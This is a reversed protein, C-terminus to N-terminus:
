FSLYSYIIHLLDDYIPMKIKKVEGIFDDVSYFRRLLDIVDNHYIYVHKNYTHRQVSKVPVHLFMADVTNNCVLRIFHTDYYMSPERYITCSMTGAPCTLMPLGASNNVITFAPNDHQILKIFKLRITLYKASQVDNHRLTYKKSTNKKTTYYEM